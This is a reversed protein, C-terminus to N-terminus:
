IHILSLNYVSDYIAGKASGAGMAAGAGTLAARAALSEGGGLIFPAAGGLLGAATELPAEKIAGLYASAMKGYDGSKNAEEEIQRRRAIEAKREPTKAEELYQEAEGLKRSAYNNAGFIDTLSKAGGTLGALAALGLNSASFGAPAQAKTEATSLHQIIEAPTYGAKLAAPTDFKKQQGLYDAVEQESYGAKLAGAVDFAM